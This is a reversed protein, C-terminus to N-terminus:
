RRAVLAYEGQTVRDTEYDGEGHPFFIQASSFGAARALMLAAEPFIPHRHTLDLWFAKLARPSHPNVTEAVFLGGPRLAGVALTMVEELDPLSLHEVFQFSTVAGLSEPAQERLHAVADGLTIRLGAARGREVMSADLDIGRAEHGAEGLVELMEGRGCGLDLVPDATSLLPLYARQRDRIFEATGRYLDEFDAYSGTRVDSYGLTRGRLGEVWLATPDSTYPAAQLEDVVEALHQGLEDLRGGLEDTRRRELDSEATSDDLRSVLVDVRAEAAELRSTAADAAARADGVRSTVEMWRRGSDDLERAVLELRSRLTVVERRTAGQEDVARRSAGFGAGVIGSLRRRVAARRKEPTRAVHLLVRARRARRQLLSLAAAAAQPASPAASAPLRTVLDDLRERVLAARAAASHKEAIDRAAQAGVGRAEEQNEYVKRMLSAAVDVRPEAWHATAPYPEAGAGIPVRDYPVLFSNHEDMFEMNGSYATAIVPKGLAMSEAMTLGLGESRHLSVYCDAHAMLATRRTPTFYDEMLVIDRRSAVAARLQDRAAPQKDGNISKIVLAAGEGPKFATTFAEVLGQVNKRRPISLFDYIFLFVFDDSLGLDARTISTDVPPVSVPPPVAFVPKSTRRAIADRAFSSVAWVEDVVDFADDFAAPFVEAEWAWAGVTYRGEFFDPGTAAAFVPIQDANIVLLNVAAPAPPPQDEFPHQQRSITQTWTTTGVAAGAAQVAAVLQRGHEGMGLEARFYGVAQVTPLAASSTPVSRVTAVEGRGSAGDSEFERNKAWDRFQQESGKASEPFAAQLDPRMDYVAQLYRGVSKWPRGAVPAALWASLVAGGGPAFPDPLLGLPIGAAEAKLVAERYARRAPADLRGGGEAVGWGYSPGGAHVLGEALLRQGYAHALASVAESDSLRVRPHDGTHKSLVDPAFPSYGSFHFFRLPHGDVLYGTASAQVTRGHLNWYAVNLGPDKLLVHPFMGPVFDIWRQDTFLMRAPDVIADRQLREWWWRLFDESGHSVAIFGLNYVGAGLIEAETPRLGDRPFPVLSHPTLVIPEQEVGTQVPDLPAYVQIDPDLYMVAEGSQKLLHMLLLPKVATALEMVDYYAALLHLEARDPILEDLHVVEFPEGDGTSHERDDIVLTAFRAGPNHELFSRALVRAHPLYNRAVITCAFM